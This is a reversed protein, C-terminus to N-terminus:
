FSEYYCLMEYVFFLSCIEYFYLRLVSQVILNSSVAVLANKILSFIDSHLRM